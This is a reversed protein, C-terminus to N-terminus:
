KRLYKLVTRTSLIASIILFTDVSTFGLYIKIFYKGLAFQNYLETHPEINVVKIMFSHFFVVVLMTITRMGSLCTIEGDKATTDFLSNFHKRSDFCSLLRNKSKRLSLTIASVTILTTLFSFIFRFHFSNLYCSKIKNRYSKFEGTLQPSIQLEKVTLRFM